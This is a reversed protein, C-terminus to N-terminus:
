LYSIHQSKKNIKNRIKLPGGPSRSDHLQTLWLEVDYPTDHTGPGSPPNSWFNWAKTLSVISM